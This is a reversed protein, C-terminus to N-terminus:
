EDPHGKQLVNKFFLITILGTVFCLGIIYNVSLAPVLKLHYAMKWIAVLSAFIMGIHIWAKEFGERCYKMGFALTFLIDANLAEVMFMSLGMNATTFYSIERLYVYIGYGIAYIMVGFISLILKM